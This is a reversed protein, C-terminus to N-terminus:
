ATAGDHIRKAVAPDSLYGRIDHADKGSNAVDNKNEIPSGVGFSTETLPRLAVIDHPDRANFWPAPAVPHVLPQLWERIATVGLPSGLTVYLPVRSRAEERHAALARYTIVSGLSHGVVVTKRDPPCNDWVAADLPNTGAQLKLYHWVDATLTAITAGSARSSWGDLAEVARVVWGWERVSREVTGSAPPAVDVGTEAVAETLVRRVFALTDPAVVAPAPPAQPARTIVDGAPEGSIMAALVDGYFAFKIELDAPPGLGNAALGAHWANVWFAKLDDPDKGAQSRGHVFLLRTPTM